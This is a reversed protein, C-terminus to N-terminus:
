DDLYKGCYPCIDSDQEIIEQCYPCKKFKRYETELETKARLPKTYQDKKQRRLGEERMIKEEQKKEERDYRRASNYHYKDSKLILWYLPAIFATIVLKDTNEDMNYLFAIRMYIAIADSIVILPISIYPIVFLCTSLLLSIWRLILWVTQGSQNYILWSGYFPVWSKEPEEDMKELMASRGICSLIIWVLVIPVAVLLAILAIMKQDM